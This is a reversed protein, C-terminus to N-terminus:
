TDYSFITFVGFLMSFNLQAPFYTIDNFSCKLLYYVMYFITNMKHRLIIKNTRSKILVTSIVYLVPKSFNLKSLLYIVCNTGM